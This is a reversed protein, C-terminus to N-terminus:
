SRKEKDCFVSKNKCIYEAGSYLTAAVSLYYVYLGAPMQTFLCFPWERLLIVVLSCMQLVTKVKGSWGAAIVNGESAAVIRVGSVAFERALVIVVTWAPIEGLQVLCVLAANVLIKDALPDMIKGFNTVLNRSRAIRGDLLDTLSALAFVLTAPIRYGTTPATMLFVIFFPILFIRILTLKNPLNM